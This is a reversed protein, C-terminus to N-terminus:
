QAGPLPLDHNLDRATAESVSRRRYQCRLASRSPGGSCPLASSSPGLVSQSIGRAFKTPQACLIGGSLPKHPLGQDICGADELTSTPQEHGCSPSLIIAIAKGVQSRFCLNNQSGTILLLSPQRLGGKASMALYCLLNRQSYVLPRRISRFV